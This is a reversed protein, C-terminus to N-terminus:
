SRGSGGNLGGANRAKNLMQVYTKNSGEPKAKLWEIDKNNLSVNAEQKIWSKIQANTSGSVLKAELDHLFKGDDLAKGLVKCWSALGM